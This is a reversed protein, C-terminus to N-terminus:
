WNCVFCDLRTHTGKKYVYVWGDVLYVSDTLNNRALYEFIEKDTKGKLDKFLKDGKRM